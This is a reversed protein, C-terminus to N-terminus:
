FGLVSALLMAGEVAKMQEENEILPTNEKFFEKAKPSLSDHIAKFREVSKECEEHVEKGYNEIFEKHYLERSAKPLKGIMNSIATDYEFREWPRNIYSSRGTFYKEGYWMGAHQCWGDRTKTTYCRITKEVGDITRTYRTVNYEKAM